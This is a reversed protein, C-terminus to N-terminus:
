TASLASAGGAGGGGGSAGGAGSRNFVVVPQGLIKTLESALPRAALDAAGSPPFPVVFVIPKRPYHAQALAAPAILLLLLLSALAGAM